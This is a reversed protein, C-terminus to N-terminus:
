CRGAWFQRRGPGELHRDCWAAVAGRGTLHGPGQPLGRRLDLNGLPQSMGDQILRVPVPGTARRAGSAVRERVEVGLGPQNGAAQASGGVLEIGVRACEVPGLRLVTPGPSLDEGHGGDHDDGGRDDHYRHSRGSRRRCGRVGSDDLALEGRGAGSCGGGGTCGRVRGLREGGGYAGQPCHAGDRRKQPWLDHLGRQEGVRLGEPLDTVGPVEVEPGQDTISRNSHEGPVVATPQGPRALLQEARLEGVRHRSPQQGRSPLPSPQPALSAALCTAPPPLM